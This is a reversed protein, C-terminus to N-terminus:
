HNPKIRPGVQLASLRTAFAEYDRPELNSDQHAVMSDSVQSRGGTWKTLGAIVLSRQTVMRPGTCGAAEAPVLLVSIGLM